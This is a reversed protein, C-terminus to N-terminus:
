DRPLSPGFSLLTDTMSAHQLRVWAASRAITSVRVEDLVAHMGHGVQAVSGTGAIMRQMADGEITADAVLMGDRYLQMLGDDARYTAVLYTWAGISAADADEVVHPGGGETRLLLAPRGSDPHLSRLEYADGKRLVAHPVVDAALSPSFWAEITFADTLALADSGSLALPGDETVGPVVRAALGIQGDVDLDGGFDIPALDLDHSSSDVIRTGAGRIMHWVAAFAGDWVLGPDITAFSKQDGYYMWVHGPLTSSEVRVWVFSRGTPDWREIEVPYAALEEPGFFRLDSGDPMAHDYEIRDADLVVLLTTGGVGSEVFAPDLDIRRKRPGEVGAATTEDAATADDDDDDTSGPESGTSGSPPLAGGQGDADPQCAAALLLFAWSGHWV